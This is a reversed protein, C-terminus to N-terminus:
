ITLCIIREIKIKKIPYKAAKLNYIISFILMKFHKKNKFIANHLITLSMKM